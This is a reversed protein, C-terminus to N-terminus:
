SANEKRSSAIIAEVESNRVLRRSNPVLNLKAARPLKWYPLGLLGAAEKLAYLKEPQTSFIKHNM